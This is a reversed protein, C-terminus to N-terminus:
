HYLTVNGVHIDLTRGGEGAKTFSGTGGPAPNHMKLSKEPYFRPKQAKKVGQGDRWDGTEDTCTQAVNQVGTRRFQQAPAAREPTQEAPRATVDPLKELEAALPLLTEDTYTGATLRPDSHRALGQAARQSVGNTSCATVFTKGMAHFDAFLGDLEYPIRAAALDAKVTKMSPIYECVRASPDAQRFEALAEALAPHIPVSDARKAKTRHRRLDIKQVAGGIQVNGWRLDRIESRRLRAYFALLYALRYFRGRRTAEALVVPRVNAILKGKHPGRRIMRLEDVTRRQTTELLTALQDLTLARREHELRV